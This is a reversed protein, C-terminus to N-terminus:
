LHWRVHVDFRLIPDKKGTRELGTIKATLRYQPQLPKQNQQGPPPHAESGAPQGQQEQHESGALHASRSESSDLTQSDATEGETGGSETTATGPRPFPDPEQGLSRSSQPNFQFPPAADASLPAFPAPNRSPSSTPSNGWPSAGAPDEADNITSSYDMTPTPRHQRRIFTTPHPRRIIPAKSLFSIVNRRIPLSPALQRHLRHLNFPFLVNLGHARWDNYRPLDPNIFTDDLYRRPSAISSTEVLWDCTQTATKASGLENAWIAAAATHRDISGGPEGGEQFRIRPLSSRM